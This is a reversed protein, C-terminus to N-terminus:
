RPGTPARRAPRCTRWTQCGSCRNLYSSRWRGSRLRFSAGLPGGSASGLRGGDVATDGLIPRALPESYATLLDVAPRPGVLVAPDDRVAIDVVVRAGVAAPGSRCVPAQQRVDTIALSVPEDDPVGVAQM